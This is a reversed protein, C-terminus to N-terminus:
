LAKLTVGFRYTGPYILYEEHVNPTWGNDGGVGMHLADLHLVVEKRPTLEWYHKVGALDAVRHHLADFHFTPSGTAALGKGAADTLSLRRVDEKGGCDGGVIYPYYQEAVTSEYEGVLASTKRDAYNEHPGRGYWHLRSFEGGLTMELGVRPLLPLSADAAATFDIAVAGDGTIRYEIVCKIGREADTGRLSSAVRVVALPSGGTGSLMGSEVSTVRRSLKDLGAAKWRFMYGMANGTIWDNDIPARYFNEVPGALLLERSSSKWSTIRGAAADFVVAFGKGAVTITDGQRTLEVPAAAPAAAIAPAYWPMRFQEWAVAFGAKAWPTDAAQEVRVNLWYEAGASLAEPKEIPLVLETRQGPAVQPTLRGSQIVRGNQCVEWVLVLHDLGIFAHKNVVIIKGAALDGAVFGVPAQVKQVEIAGPHPTLDPAVVGNLCMSPCERNAPYDYKENFDGGYGWVRRGDPLVKTLAKDQWDWIYGGQFRPWADILDWYKKFNGSANGKAYAYEVLILPRRERNDSLLHKIQEVPPYMPCIIDSIDPGPASSEYQVIRTPDHRRIWAAMAAHHPGHHSENGLSWFLVSAHNKDRQVLRTARVLYAAAWQPDLSLDGDVGHTELNAEDVVYLGLEDCLEYWRTHDPYHCTRVANFNLRKMALIDQRMDEDTVARGRDPHSEHRNVGRVVLRQGNILVIGDKIEVQRFGVRCSEIDLVEGSPSLLEIVLTYLCPSEASWQRPRAITATVKACCKERGGNWYMFTHLHFPAALPAALPAPLVAAGAADYLTARVSHAAVDAVESMYASLTLTADEYRNDFTTRVTFDALHAAPKAYLYVDRQIGSMQWYDQDELYTGDSYRMVQVALTNEGARLYPTLRFEAPLRSDQSYGVAQGNVWVYFASDVSEFVIFVERGAWDAPITFTRRYCGTPNAAPVRPPTPDFPYHINTYIPPDDFGQLQWNGPVTISKWASANFDDAFFGQPAAEPSAALHFSWQGNLLRVRPSAMRDCAMAAKVDPYAALPVHAPQRNREFVAPDEWDRKQM